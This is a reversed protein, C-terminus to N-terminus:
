VRVGVMAVDDLQENNGRWTEFIKDLYEKQTSLSLNNIEVLKQQLHKYKFKKGQPGGFQDAYGDSFLYITDGPNVHIAHNTFATPNVTYGIPQKDAKYQIIEPQTSQASSVILLPNNAGAWELENTELHLRMLSIDMGDKSEGSEGSQKLEKVIKERLKDLIDAPTLLKESANIENLYAIGLMSM